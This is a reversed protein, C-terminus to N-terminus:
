ALLQATKIAREWQSLSRPAPRQSVNRKLPSFDGAGRKSGYWVVPKNSKNHVLIEM